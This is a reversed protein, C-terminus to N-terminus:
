IELVDKIISKINIGRIQTKFNVNYGELKLNNFFVEACKIKNDEIFRLDKTSEVDKTEVIINLDKSGDNNKVVYMFDPSYTGGNITPIRISNRPIKGFVVVEDIKSKMNDKELPSDYAMVDYLYKEMPEGSMIKTGIRGQSISEKPIGDKNTLATPHIPLRSKKYNFRGQLNEIKWENFNRILNSASYENFHKNKLVVHNSYECISEHILKIPLSTSDSVMILFKNYPIPKEIFYSVGTSEDIIMEDLTAHVIQRKSTTVIDKFVDKKLLEVLQNKMYKEDINEYYIFYKENLKEWLEKLENYNNKRIRVAKPKTKNNDKVKGGELGGIFGPYKEIFEDKKDMNIEYNIDIFDGILLEAFLKKPDVNLSKSVKEISEATISFVEPTDSNIQRVLEEAFHKETFDVIYNLFFEENSIRNGYEDVPLRLGRGVEQLKSNESGSSRLKAITFINPNDWGEKLTWKSFLFRRTNFSGDANRISVLKEKEFLIEKVEQAIAEDTDSNDLSFYGAHTASINNKSAILYEKYEPDDSENVKALEIEIREKLLNEFKDKLYTKKNSETDERYSYIDDIFFLALTKIKNKRNFNMRETEFHRELSLRLMQEQYSTSYIDTNFEEGQYKIQGNSLEIFNSGIGTIHIGEFSATIISLNEGKKMTYTKTNKGEKLYQINVSTKNKVSVIKVKDYVNSTPEIHEKSIGKILNQNFADCSSLNYILNNYDKVLQKKRGVKIEKDPYTAGFRIMVQPCIRNEIFEFTKKGKTFRHPEDIIVVPKTEKIAEIPTYFGEVSSDYDDRVLMGGKSEKLHHMNTLLVHIKNSVQSSGVIFERVSSPFYNKGKKKKKSELSHLEIECNYKCSDRFHRKVYPLQIFKEVGAKIALSPVVIIFKNFGYKKHLEFITQTYVYTKGTGTEMKIDLNLYNDIDMSGRMSSHVEKQARKINEKIVEDKIDILPNMYSFHPKSICVGDFVQSIADVAKQQHPLGDKLILDM